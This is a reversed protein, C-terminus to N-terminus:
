EVRIRPDAFRYLIDVVLNILVFVIAVCTSCAVVVPVDLTRTANVALNGFGGLQFVREVVFVGMLMNGLIIGSLTMVSVLANKRAHRYVAQKRHLGKARACVIYQKGLEEMLSSRTVRMLGVGQTFVLVLVPLVLHAAADLFLAVDGNLLADITNM